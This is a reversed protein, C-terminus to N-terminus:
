RGRSEACGGEVKAVTRTLKGHRLDVKAVRLERISRQKEALAQSVRVKQKENNAACDQVGGRVGSEAVLGPPYGSSAALMAVLRSFPALMAVLPLPAVQLQKRLAQVQGEGPVRM